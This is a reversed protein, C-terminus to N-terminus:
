MKPDSLSRDILETMQEKDADPAYHIGLENCLKQQKDTAEPGPVQKVADIDVIMQDRYARELADNLDTGYYKRSRKRGTKKGFGPIQFYPM